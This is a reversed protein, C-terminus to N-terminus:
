SNLSNAKIWEARYITVASVYVLGFPTPLSLLSPCDTQLQKPLKHEFLNFVTFSNQRMMKIKANM